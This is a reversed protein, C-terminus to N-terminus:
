TVTKQFTKEPILWGELRSKGKYFAAESLFVREDLAYAFHPAQLDMGVTRTNWIPSTLLQLCVYVFHKSPSIYSLLTSVPELFCHAASPRAGVVFIVVLSHSEPIFAPM